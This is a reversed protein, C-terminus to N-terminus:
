SSWGVFSALVYSLNLDSASIISNKWFRPRFTMQQIVGKVL